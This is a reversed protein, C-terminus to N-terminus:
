SVPMTIAKKRRIVAVAVWPDDAAINFCFADPWNGKDSGQFRVVPKGLRM